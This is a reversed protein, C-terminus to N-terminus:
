KTEQKPDLSENDVATMGCCETRIKFVKEDSMPRNGCLLPTM